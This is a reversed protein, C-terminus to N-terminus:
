SFTWGRSREIVVEASYIEATEVFLHMLWCLLLLVQLLLCLLPLWSGCWGEGFQSLIVGQLSM